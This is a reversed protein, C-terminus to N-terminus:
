CTPIIAATLAIKGASKEPYFNNYLIFLRSILSTKVLSQSWYSAITLVLAVAQFIQCRILRDM